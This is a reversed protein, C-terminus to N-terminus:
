PLSRGLDSSYDRAEKLSPYKGFCSKARPDKFFFNKPVPANEIVAEFIHNWRIEDAKESELQINPYAVYGDHRADPSKPEYKLIPSAEEEVIECIGSKCNKAIKRKYFGGQPTRTTHINAINSSIVAIKQYLVNLDQCYIDIEKETPNKFSSCGLILSSLVMLRSNYKELVKFIKM